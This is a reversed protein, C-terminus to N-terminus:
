PRPQVFSGTPRSTPRCPGTFCDVTVVNKVHASFEGTEWNVTWSSIRHLLDLGILNDGSPCEVVDIDYFTVDFVHLAHLHWARWRAKGGGALTMEVFGQSDAATLAGETRLEQLDASTFCTREAGTDIIADTPMANLVVVTRISPDGRNGFPTITNAEGAVAPLAALGFAAAALLLSRINIKM